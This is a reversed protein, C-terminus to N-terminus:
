PAIDLLRLQSLETVQIHTQHYYKDTPRGQSIFYITVRQAEGTVAVSKGVFFEQAPAGYRAQLAAQLRPHISVTVARQDRYDLETNLYVVAGQRAAAKIPLIYEGAVGSPAVQAASRIIEMTDSYPIAQAPSKARQSASCGALLLVAAIVVVKM